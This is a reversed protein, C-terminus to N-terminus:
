RYMDTSIDYEDILKRLMKITKKQYYAYTLLSASICGFLLALQFGDVNKLFIGMYLGFLCFGGAFLSAIIVSMLQKDSKLLWKLHRLDSEEM